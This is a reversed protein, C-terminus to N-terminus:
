LSPSRKLLGPTALVKPYRPYFKLKTLLIALYKIFLLPIESGNELGATASVVKSVTESHGESRYARPKRIPLGMGASSGPSQSFLIPWVSIRDDFLQATLRSAM